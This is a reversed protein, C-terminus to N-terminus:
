ADRLAAPDLAAEGLPSAELLAVLAAEDLIPIGLRTAAELKSGAAEGAVVFDTQRSVSGSVRGGAAQIREQAEARKLTPLTGTLVFTKGALPGETGERPEEPLRQTNVGHAQLARVVAQNDPVRFWDYVSEATVHGIGAIAEMDEVSAAALADLSAYRTVLLEATTKGVHRIGLGFLLRALPRRRSADIGQILNEAKKEAFGELGVLDATTLRYLDALHRVVGAQALQVALKSGLGEIDMASRAAFHELLRIFQAPCDNSVCYYDAEEPLRQLPSGCAPCLTPMQWPQETGTRVEPLPRLVQPIVDGARKVLVLDGIRIDRSRVYGENHLTAQSVTVGGIAVPELVAEPKIAGTRGVNVVIDLLRTTAERAPFKYAIAWRPANSIAGLLEQYAFDDVKVVVGDIEYDLTERRETWAACFDVVDGITALRRTHENVPLGLGKLLALLDHHSGGLTEGGSGAGYAYFRLPRRATVRPDLQRLSGAAANRPNAFTKEGQAALGENLAEFASLRMYVEGRVELEDPIRAGGAARLRLPIAEITRVNQTIDEGVYGNGRTAARVLRGGQYLLSVALGDIKLEATLLPQVAHGLAQELGRCCRDYWAQLDDATFANALSLLPRTHEVKEFRDLPAAGVRQTPSDPSVLAPHWAELEQLARFLRDYEVDAALPDDLVYYQYGHARLLRRLTEALEQAEAASCQAPPQQDLRALLSRTEAVLAAADM